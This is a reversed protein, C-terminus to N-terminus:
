FFLNRFKEYSNFSFLLLDPKIIYTKKNSKINNKNPFQM